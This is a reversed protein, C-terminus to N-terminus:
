RLYAIKLRTLDLAQLWPRVIVVLLDEERFTGRDDSCADVLRVDYGASRRHSAPAVHRQAAAEQHAVIRVNLCVAQQVRDAYQHTDGGM